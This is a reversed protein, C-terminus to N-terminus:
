QISFSLDFGKCNSYYIYVYVYVYRSVRKRRSLQGGIEERSICMGKERERASFSVKTEAKFTKRELKMTRGSIIGISIGRHERISGRRDRLPLSTANGVRPNSRFPISGKGEGFLALERSHDIM